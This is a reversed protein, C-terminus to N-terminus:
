LIDGWNNWLRHSIDYQQKQKQSSHMAHWESHYCTRSKATAGRVGECLRRAIIHCQATVSQGPGRWATHWARNLRTPGFLARSRRRIVCRYGSLATLNPLCHLPPLPPLWQGSPNWSQCTVRILQTTVRVELRSDGEWVVRMGKMDPPSTSCSLSLRWFALPQKGEQM